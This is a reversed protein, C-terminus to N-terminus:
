LALHHHDYRTVQSLRHKYLLLLLLTGGPISSQTPMVNCRANVAM